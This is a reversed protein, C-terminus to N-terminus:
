VTESKLSREPRPWQITPEILQGDADIRFQGGGHSGPCLKSCTNAYGFELHALGREKLIAGLANFFPAPAQSIDANEEGYIYIEAGNPDYDVSICSDPHTARLALGGDIAKPEESGILAQILAFAEVPTCKLTQAATIHTLYNPM